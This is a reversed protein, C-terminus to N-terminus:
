GTYVATTSTQQVAAGTAKSIPEFNGIIYGLAVGAVLMMILMIMPASNAKALARVAQGWLQQIIFMHAGKASTGRAPVGIGIPVPYAKGAIYFYVRHTWQIFAVKGNERFYQIGNAGKGFHFGDANTPFEKRGAMYYQTGAITVLAKKKGKVSVDIDTDKMPDLILAIDFKGLYPHLIQRAIFIGMVADILLSVAIIPNSTFFSLLPIDM